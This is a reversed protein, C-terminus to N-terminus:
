QYKIMKVLFEELMDFEHRNYLPDSETIIKWKFMAKYSLEFLKESQEISLNPPTILAFGRLSSM